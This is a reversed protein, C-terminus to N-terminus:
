EAPVAGAADVRAKQQEVWLSHHERAWNLDVEGSGMADFAGEMGVSGIYIHALMIAILGAAILGHVIAALQMDAITTGWFPFLLLLGTAALAAGGLIVSWFILKQGANFKGAPPHDHGFLGGARKLWGIDGKGPLNDAVWILFMLVLGLMFPFALFNHAIKGLQAVAHFAEPGVLPLLVHRGVGINLGTLALVMFCCATLWHVFREFSGFRLIKLGSLGSDVMIRGRTMYFIALLALTGLVAIGTLWPLVSGQLRRWEGGPQMLVGAKADPISVRGELRDLQQLKQAEQMAAATPNFGSPVQQARTPAAMLLAVAVLVMAAFGSVFSRRSTM